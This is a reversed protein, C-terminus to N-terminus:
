RKKPSYSKILYTDKTSDYDLYGEEVMDDLVPWLGDINERGIITLASKRISDATVSSASYRSFCSLVFRLYFEKSRAM